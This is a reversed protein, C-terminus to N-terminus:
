LNLSDSLLLALDCVKATALKYADAVVFFDMSELVESKNKSALLQSIIESAAHLSEIFKLAETYYRKTLQLKMLDESTAAEQQAQSAQDSPHKDKDAKGTEEEHNEGNVALGPADSPPQLSNIQLSVADLREKWEQYSLQGGHLLAFPHTSILKTLVKIVNRRVHSSKDELSRVCLDCIRQRKKPFKVPLSLNLYYRFLISRLLRLYVQFLISRCYPNVDLTREELLDFFCDIQSKITDSQEDQQILDSIMNGSIEIVSCRM